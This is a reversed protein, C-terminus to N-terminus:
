TTSTHEACTSISLDILAHIVLAKVVPWPTSDWTKPISQIFTVFQQTVVVVM